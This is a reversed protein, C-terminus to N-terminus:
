WQSAAHDSPSFCNEAIITICKDGSAVASDERERGRGKRFFERSREAEVSNGVKGVGHEVARESAGHCGCAM